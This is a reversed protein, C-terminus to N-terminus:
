GDLPLYFGRGSKRILGREAARNLYTSAHGSDLDTEEAVEFPRVGLPSSIGKRHANVFRVVTRLNEGTGDEANFAVANRSAEDLDEGDLTWAGTERDFRVKYEGEPADRSTLQLTGEDSNRKRSLKLIEDAIGATGQSGSVTEVFDDSAMKRTHHVVLLCAGDYPDIADKLLGSVRSDRDYENEGAQRPVSPRFKALTDLIVLPKEESHRECFSSIAKLPDCTATSVVFELNTPSSEDYGLKRM